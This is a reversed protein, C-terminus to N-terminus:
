PLNLGKLLDDRAAAAVPYLPEAVFQQIALVSQGPVLVICRAYVAQSITAGRDLVVGTFADSTDGGDIANGNDDVLPKSGAVDTGQTQTQILIDVCSRADLNSPIGYFEVTTYGGDLVIYEIGQDTTTPGDSIQCLSTDYSISYGFTKSTFKKKKSTPTKTAKPKPTKTATARPTRTPKPTRTATVAPNPTKNTTPTARNQGTLGSVLYLQLQL